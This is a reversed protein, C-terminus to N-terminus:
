EMMEPIEVDRFNIVKGKNNKRTADGNDYVHMKKKPGQTGDPVVQIHNQQDGGPPSKHETGQITGGACGARDMADCAKQEWDAKKAPDNKYANPDSWGVTARPEVPQVPTAAVLGISFIAVLATTFKM